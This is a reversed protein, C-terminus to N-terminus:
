LYKISTVSAIFLWQVLYKSWALYVHVQGVKVLTSLMQSRRVLLVYILHANFAWFLVAHEGFLPFIPFAVRNRFQIWSQGQVKTWRCNRIQSGISNSFPCHTIYYHIRGKRELYKLCNKGDQIFDSIIIRIDWVHLIIIRRNM